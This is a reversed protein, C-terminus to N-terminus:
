TWMGLKLTGWGVEVMELEGLGLGVLVLMGLEDLGVVVLVLREMGSWKWEGVLYLRRRTRGERPFLVIWGDVMMRLVRARGLDRHEVEKDEVIHKDVERVLLYGPIELIRGLSGETRALLIVAAVPLVVAKLPRLAKSGPSLVGGWYV